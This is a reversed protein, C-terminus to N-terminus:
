GNCWFGIAFVTAVIAGAWAIFAYHNENDRRLFYFYLGAIGACLALVLCLTSMRCLWKCCKTTSCGEEKKRKKRKRKKRQDHVRHQHETLVKRDHQLQQRRLDRERRSLHKHNMALEEEKRRIDMEMRQQQMAMEKHNSILEIERRHIEQSQEKLDVVENLTAVPVLAYGSPVATEVAGESQNPDPANATRHNASQYLDSPPDHVAIQNPAAPSPAAPSPTGRSPSVTDVDFVVNPIVAQIKQQQDRQKQVLLKRHEEQEAKVALDIQHQKKQKMVDNLLSQLKSKTVADLDPYTMQAATAKILQQTEFIYVPYSGNHVKKDIIGVIKGNLAPDKTYKQLEFIKGPTFFAM